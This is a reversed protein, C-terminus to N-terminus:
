TYEAVQMLPLDLSGYLDAYEVVRRYWRPDAEGRLAYPGFSNTASDDWTVATTSGDTEFQEVYWWCSFGRKLSQEFLEHFTGGGNVGAPVRLREALIETWALGQQVQEYYTSVLVRTGDASVHRTADTQVWGATGLLTEPTAIWGPSWLLPSCHPASRPSDSSALVGDWGLVDRLTTNAIWDISVPDGPATVLRVRRGETIVLSATPVQTQIAAEVLDVLSLAPNVHRLYLTGGPTAVNVGNVEIGSAEFQRSAVIWSSDPM